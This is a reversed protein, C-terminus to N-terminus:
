WTSNVRLPVKAGRANEIIEKAILSDSDAVNLQVHFPIAPRNFRDNNVIPKAWSEGVEHLTTLMASMQNPQEERLLEEANEVILIYADAPLWEDLCRLCDQLAYWNEGFGDFFQLAAAFENMLAQTTRMKKGRLCRVCTNSSPRSYFYSPIWKIRELEGPGICIWPSDVRFLYDLTTNM